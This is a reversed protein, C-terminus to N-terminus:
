DGSPNEDGTWLSDENFQIRERAIGGFFMAGLRGNGIPLAETMWKQAPQDYWLALDPASTTEGALCATFLNLSLITFAIALWDWTGPLKPQTNM